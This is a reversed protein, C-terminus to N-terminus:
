SDPLSARAPAVPAPSSSRGAHARARAGRVQAHHTRRGHGVASCRRSRWRTRSETSARLSGRDRRSWRPSGNPTNTRACAGARGSRRRRFAAGAARRQHRPRAFTASTTPPLESVPKLVKRSLWVGIALSLLGFLFVAGIVSILLQQKGLEDRSVDYRLFSIIGGERRVALKYRKVHGDADVESIDHVGTQLQQWELPAKYITRDSWSWAKVINFHPPQTPDARVQANLSDVEDQLSTTILQDEVKARINLAAVAFLASLGFGFLAFSVIM